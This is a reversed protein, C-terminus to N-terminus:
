YCYFQTKKMQNKKTIECFSLYIQFVKEYIESSSGGVNNLDINGIEKEIHNIAEELNM